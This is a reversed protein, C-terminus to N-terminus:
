WVVQKGRTIQQQIERAEHIRNSPIHLEAARAMNQSAADFDQRSLAQKALNLCADATKGIEVRIPKEQTGVDRPHPVSVKPAYATAAAFQELAEQNRNLAQLAKGAGAHAEAILMVMSVPASVEMAGPTPLMASVMPTTRGGPDLMRVVETNAQYLKLAEDPLSLEALMQRLKMSLGFEQPDHPPIAGTYEPPDDLRLRSEELALALRFQLAAENTQGIARLIIGQYAPTRADEPDFQHATDLQQRAKEFDKAEISKWAQRLPWLASTHYLKTVNALQMEADDWRGTRIYFDALAEQAELSQPQKQIAQLFLAEAAHTQQKALQLQAQFLLKEFYDQTASMAASVAAEVKPSLMAMAADLQDAQIRTQQTPPSYSVTRFEFIGDPRNELKVTEQIRPRRRADAQRGLRNARDVWYEACLKLTEPQKGAAASVEDVIREADADRGLRSLAFAQLMRARTHQPRLKLAQQSAELARELERQEDAHARYPVWARRPEVAASRRTMDSEDILFQALDAWADPNRPKCQVAEELVRLRDQYDEDYRKCRICAARHFADANSSIETENGSGVAAVLNTWLEEPSKSVQFEALNKEITSRYSKSAKGDIRTATRFDTWARHADGMLSAAVARDLYANVLDTRQILAATLERRATAAHGLGLWNAGIYYAVLPDTPIIRHAFALERLSARYQGAENYQRAKERHALALEPATQFRAAFWRGAQLRLSSTQTPDPTRGNRRPRAYGNYALEHYVFTAFDSPYDKGGKLMLEPLTVVENPIFDPLPSRTKLTGRAAHDPTAFGGMSEFVYTWLEPERNCFSNQRLPALAAVADQCHEGLGLAVAHALAFRFDQPADRQASAFTEAAQDWQGGALLDLGDLYTVLVPPAETPTSEAVAYAFTFFAGLLICISRM